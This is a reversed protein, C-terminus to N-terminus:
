KRKERLSAWNKEKENKRESTKGGDNEDSVVATDVGDLVNGCLRFCFCLGRKEKIATCGAVTNRNGFGRSEGKSFYFLARVKVKKLLM